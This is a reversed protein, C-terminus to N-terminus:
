GRPPTMEFIVGDHLEYHQQSNEPYWAIFDDFVLKGLAQIM